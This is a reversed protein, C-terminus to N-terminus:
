EEPLYLAAVGFAVLVEQFAAPLMKLLQLISIEEAEMRVAAEQHVVVALAQLLTDAAVAAALVSLVLRTEELVAAAAMLM